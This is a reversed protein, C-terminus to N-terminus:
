CWRGPHSRTWGAKVLCSTCARARSAQPSPLAGHAAASLAAAVRGPCRHCPMLPGQYQYRGEQQYYRVVQMIGNNSGDPARHFPVSPPKCVILVRDNEFLPSPFPHMITKSAESIGHGGFYWYGAM